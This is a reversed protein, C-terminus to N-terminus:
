SLRIRELHQPVVATWDLERELIGRLSEAGEPEGHVVFAIDPQEPAQRAWALLESQDAHVSFASLDVIRARVPVYQGLMKLVRTGQLLRRGRTGAAQYGVLIVSNRDDPLRAVLHHLVRGGTAMGSASVIIAPDTSAALDRSEGVDRVEVLEGSSFPQEDGHLEPRIEEWGEAIARKYLELAALAMPSDVYVPVEPVRGARVLEGLLRLIV